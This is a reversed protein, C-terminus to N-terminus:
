QYAPIELIKSVPAFNLNKDRVAKIIAPLMHITDKPRESDTFCDHGDHLLIIDGGRLDKTIEFIQRHLPKKVQSYASALVPILKLDNLVKEAGRNCALEQTPRFFRIRLGLIKEIVEVSKAIRESIVRTRLAKWYQQYSSFVEAQYAHGGIEHGEAVIRKAVNPLKEINEPILFFTATIDESKLIDLIKETWASPGDDFTLAVLPLKRKGHYYKLFNIYQMANEAEKVLSVMGYVASTAVLRNKRYLLSTIKESNEWAKGIHVAEGL